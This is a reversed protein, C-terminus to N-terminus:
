AFLTWEIWIDGSATAATDDVDAYTDAINLYVTRAGAAEVALDANFTFLEATGALDALVPTTAGAMYEEDTSASAGITANAGSALTSGLGIEPTDTTPTGTTLTVGVNISTSQVVMAGAPFTYILAGSALAVNDGITLALSALTLKTVHHQGDGYETATVSTAATGVNRAHTGDALNKHM